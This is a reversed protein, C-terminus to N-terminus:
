YNSRSNIQPAGFMHHFLSQNKKLVIM